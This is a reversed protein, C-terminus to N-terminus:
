ISNNDQKSGSASDKPKIIAMQILRLVLQLKEKSNLRVRQETQDEVLYKVVEYLQELIYDCTKM